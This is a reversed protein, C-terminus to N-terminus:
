IIENEALDPCHEAMLAVLQELREIPEHMAIAYFREKGVQEVSVTGAQLMLKLHHSVAPRSLHLRETLGGVNMAGNQLLLYLIKHRNEDALVTFIPICDKLLQLTQQHSM